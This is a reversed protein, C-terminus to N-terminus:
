SNDQSAYSSRVSASATKAATMKPAAVNAAAVPTAMHESAEAAEMAAM